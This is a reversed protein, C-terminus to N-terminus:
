VLGASTTARRLPDAPTVNVMALRLDGRVRRLLSVGGPDQQICAIDALPIGMVGGLLLANVVRHAVVIADGEEPWTSEFAPWVRARLDALSEGGPAAAEQGDLVGALGPMDEVARGEWKGLRLGGLGDVVEVPRGAAIIEATQVARAAGSCAVRRCDLGALFDRAAEAQRRGAPSLGSRGGSEMGVKAGAAQEGHRVLAVLAM